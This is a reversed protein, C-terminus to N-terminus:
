LDRNQRRLICFVFHPGVLLYVLKWDSGLNFHFRSLWSQKSGSAADPVTGDTVTGATADFEIWGTGPFYVETWAHKDEARLNFSAGDPDGPAFGVALRAPIGATRCLITLSSAFMDCYGKRTDGLFAHVHDTDDPLPPPTLTYVCRQSVWDRLAQTEDLPDRQNPPLPQLASAVCQRYFALDEPLAASSQALYLKTVTDPYATGAQRLRDAVGPQGLDPPLASVVQYRFRVPEGGILGLRGDRLTLVGSSYRASGAGFIVQRPADAYYFQNTEGRVEYGTTLPQRGADSSLAPDGPTLSAPLAYSFIEGMGGALPAPPSAPVEDNELSSQWGDVRTFM